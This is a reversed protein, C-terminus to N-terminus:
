KLLVMKKTDTYIIGSKEDTVMMRYFYVGTATFKGMFDVEYAGAQQYNDVMRQIERGTIDYAIIKVHVASSLSYPIVTRPNFPNPFNQYLKFQEPIKSSIKQLGTYFTDNGGTTTHIGINPTYAWGINRNIFQIFAYSYINISTDPLQFLWNNGGNTTRYIIGRTQNNPFFIVSGTGWITDANICSFKSMGYQIINPGKPLQQRIWTFGGDTTKKMSSDNEEGICKWGTLSDTFYIDMFRDNNLLLFWNLGGNTTKYTNSLPLYNSIFGIRANYMYIKNPNQNGGSFQQEWNIGGTSTFYVGGTLPNPSALLITNENLVSMDLYNNLPANLSFWNAGGNISKDIGTIGCIFGTSQNLFYVRYLGPFGGGTQIKRYQIAWNDGGNTTKLVLTTDNAQNTANTVSWGTLSDIFYIDQITRGGLNPM